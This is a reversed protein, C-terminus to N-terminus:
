AGHSQYGHCGGFCGLSRHTQLPARLQDGTGSLPVNTQELAQDAVHVMLREVQDMMDHYDAFAQYFELM